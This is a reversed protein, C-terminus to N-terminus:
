VNRFDPRFTSVEIKRIFAKDIFALKVEEVIPDHLDPNYQPFLIHIKSGWGETLKQALSVLRKLYDTEFEDIINLVLIETTNQVIKFPLISSNIYQVPLTTISTRRTKATSNHGTNPILFELSDNNFRSQAFTITDALFAARKNDVLYISEFEWDNDTKFDSLRTIVDDYQANKGNDLWFIVGTHKKQTLNFRSVQQKLPSKKFCELANALDKVHSRFKSTPNSSYEDNYKSSILVLEQTENFLPCEYAYLFDIGHVTRGKTSASHRIPEICPFDRGKVLTDWGILNLLKEVVEEGFEGRKKSVEAM